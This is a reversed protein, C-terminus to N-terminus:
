SDEWKSTSFLKIDGVFGKRKENLETIGIFLSNQENEHIFKNCILSSVQSDDEFAVGTLGALNDVDVNKYRGPSISFSLIVEVESKKIINEGIVSSAMESVTAQFEKVKQNSPKKQYIDKLTEGENTTVTLEKLPKFSDKKTPAPDGGLFGFLFDLKPNSYFTVTKKESM